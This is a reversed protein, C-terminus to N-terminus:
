YGRTFLFLFMLLGALAVVSQWRPLSLLGLIAGAIISWNRWWLLWEFSAPRPINSPWPGGPFQSKLQYNAVVVSVLAAIALWGFVTRVRAIWPWAKSSMPQAGKM